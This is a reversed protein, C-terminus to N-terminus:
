LTTYFILYTTCHLQRFSAISAIIFGVLSVILSDQYLKDTNFAQKNFLFGLSLSSIGVQIYSCTKDNHWSREKPMKKQM